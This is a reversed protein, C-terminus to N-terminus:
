SSCDNIKNLIIKKKLISQIYLQFIILDNDVDYYPELLKCRFRKMIKILNDSFEIIVNNDRYSIYSAGNANVVGKLRIIATSSNTYETEIYQKGIIPLNINKGYVNGIPPINNINNIIIGMITFIKLIIM